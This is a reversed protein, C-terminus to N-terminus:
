INITVPSPSYFPPLLPTSPFHIVWPLFPLKCTLCFHRFPTPSTCSRAVTVFKVSLKIPDNSFIIQSRLNPLGRYFCRSAYGKLPNRVNTRHIARPPYCSRSFTTRGYDIIKRLRKFSAFFTPVHYSKSTPRLISLRLYLAFTRNQISSLFFDRTADLSAFPLSVAHM